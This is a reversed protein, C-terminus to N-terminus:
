VFVKNMPFKRKMKLNRDGDIKGIRKELSKKGQNFYITHKALIEQLSDFTWNM